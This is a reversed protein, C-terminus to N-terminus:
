YKLNQIIRIASERSITEPLYSKILIFSNDKFISYSFVNYSSGPGSEWFRKEYKLKGEMGSVTIDEGDVLTEGPKVASSCNGLTQDIELDGYRIQLSNKFYMRLVPCDMAFATFTSNYIGRIEFHFNDAKQNEPVWEPIFLKNGFKREYWWKEIVSIPAKGAGLLPVRYLYKISRSVFPAGVFVLFSISLLSFIVASKERSGDGMRSVIIIFIIVIVTFFVPFIFIMGLRSIGDTEFFTLAGLWYCLIFLLLLLVFNILKRMKCGRGRGWKRRLWM